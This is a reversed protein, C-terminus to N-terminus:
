GRKALMEGIKNLALFRYRMSERPAVPSKRHVAEAVIPDDLVEGYPEVLLLRGAACADFYVGGPKFYREHPSGVPPFGDKQIVILPMNSERLRRAITKEGESIASTISVVGQAARGHCERYLEELGETTISRSCQIHQKIPHNMLFINGMVRFKWNHVNGNEDIVSWWRDNRIRFLEPNHHKLWLRRPNDKVYRIMRDLQGECHLIREHYGAPMYEWISGRTAFIRCFQVLVEESRWGDQTSTGNDRWGDQASTGNQINPKGETTITRKEPMKAQAIGQAAGQAIGKAAGQRNNYYERKFWSTCASKFSRVIEGISKPMPELVFIVGHLHDPMVRVALVKIKIGKRAYFAPLGRFTSNVYAGLPTFAIYAEEESNGALTGFVARRGETALTVHYVGRGKYDWLNERHHRTTDTACRWGAGDIYTM